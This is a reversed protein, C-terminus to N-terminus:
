GKNKASNRAKPIRQAVPPGSTEAFAALARARAQDHDVIPAPYTQGLVIGAARLAAAPAQWPAHLYRTDLRALEPVWRRVYGGDPDFKAGQLMPNFVRFYPAADAGSGAVWQWGAPNNAADADCLTDWFWEEGERWDIGLHKSLFSASILRARNHMYGTAWLERQAADVVPYGTRGRRWAELASDDRRWPFADFRPSWNRTALDPAQYLLAYAFERWGIESLFKDLGRHAGDQQAAAEAAAAVRRPSVEGFALHPSLRSTAELDLRDRAEAYDTLAEDLFTKLRAQAGAEGPRWAAALGASWDPQVPHLKLKALAVRAPAEAPWPAARLRKPAPQPAAFPGLERSRRWFPTFVKFPTGGDTKVEWPERLLQGNFSEARVGLRQLEAKIRSDTAIEAGGYRRTWFVSDVHRALAPILEAAAGALIDLRGGIAALSEGFAALSKDLWWRSAGGRPRSATEDHIYVFLAPDAAAAAIAPQDDLRLDDRLWVLSTM